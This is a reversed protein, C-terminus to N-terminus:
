GIRLFGKVWDISTVMWPLDKWFLGACLAFGGIFLFIMGLYSAFNRNDAFLARGICYIIGLPFLVILFVTLITKWVKKM